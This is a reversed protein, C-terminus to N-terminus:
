KLPLHKRLVHEVESLIFLPLCILSATDACNVSHIYVYVCVCTNFSLLHLLHPVYYVLSLLLLEKSIMMMRSITRM